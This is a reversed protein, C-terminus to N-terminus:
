KLATESAFKQDPMAIKIGMELAKVFDDVPIERVQSSLAGVKKPDYKTRLRDLEEDITRARFKTKGDKDLDVVLVDKITAKDVEVPCGGAAKHHESVLLMAEVPTVNYKHVEHDKTLKLTVTAEKM